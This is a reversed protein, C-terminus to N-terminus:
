STYAINMFVIENTLGSKNKQAYICAYNMAASFESSDDVCVLLNEDSLTTINKKRM